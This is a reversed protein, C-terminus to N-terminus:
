KSYYSMVIQILPFYLKDIRINNIYVINYVNNKYNKEDKSRILTQQYKISHKKENKKRIKLKKKTILIVVRIM